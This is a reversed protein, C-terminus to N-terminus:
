ANPDSELLHKRLAAFLQEYVKPNETEPLQLQINIAIQMGPPLISKSADPVHGVDGGGGQPMGPQEPTSEPAPAEVKTPVRLTGDQDLLLGSELLLDLVTRAGTQHERKKPLGSVYLVHSQFEDPSMGSKIRVTSILNSLFESGQIVERLGETTDAAQGHEIARGLKKGLETATKKKGGEVLGVQALFAHNASVTTKAAGILTSLSALTVDADLEAYARIIKKLEPYSSSPLRSVDGKIKKPAV